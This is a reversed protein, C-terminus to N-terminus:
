AGRMCPHRGDECQQPVCQSLQRRGVGCGARRWERACVAGVTRQRSDVRGSRGAGRDRAAAFQSRRPHVRRKRAPTQASEDRYDRRLGVFHCADGPERKTRFFRITRARGAQKATPGSPCPPFRAMRVSAPRPRFAGRGHSAERRRDEQTRSAASACRCEMGELRLGNWVTTNKYATPLFISRPKLFLLRWRCNRAGAAVMALRFRTKQRSTLTAGRRQDM